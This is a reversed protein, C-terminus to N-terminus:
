GRLYKLRKGESFKEIAYRLMTRPMSKYHRKLFDEEVKLNRNGVERLMWGTAKHILDHKDNLLIEAIKLSDGFDGERIFWFTSMVAIRRKWLNDSKAFDYLFGKSEGSEWLYRGIIKPVSIDVLDWNNIGGLNKLYFDFVKKRAKTDGKEFRKVLIMVACIREEHIKSSLLKALSAFDLDRYKLAVSRTEDTKLGLFKDGEAYEGKGTKFFWRLAKAREPRKFKRLDQRLYALKLM